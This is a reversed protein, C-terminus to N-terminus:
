SARPLDARLRLPPIMRADALVRLARREAEGLEEGPDPASLLVTVVCDSCAIDRMVCRDCEILM